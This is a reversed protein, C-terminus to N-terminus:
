RVSRARMLAALESKTDADGPALSLAQNLAERAKERLGMRRLIKGLTRYHGAVAPQANCAVDAYERAADLDGLELALSAAKANIEPDCPRYSLAEEYMRMADQKSRADLSVEAEALLEAARVQHVRAQVEAFSRKYDDNWPDFAIALRISAGAEKWNGRRSSVMASQHFQKAKFRREVLVEEPIRFHRRLRDLAARKADVEPEPEEAHRGAADRPPESPPAQSMSREIEARTAPDSLLEYAEVIKMFITELRSAFGGLERGFHRDPHFERSLKFYARKIERIDADVEVGLLMYYPRDLSAEFELIRRQEERSLDTGTEFGDSEDGPPESPESNAAGAVGSSPPGEFTVIGDSVWRELCRDVEEPPLGGILRLQELPTHGDIRSLLFGEAPTLHASSPDWSGSLQPKQQQDPMQQAASRMSRGGTRMGAGRESM